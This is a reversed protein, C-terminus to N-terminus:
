GRNAVEETTIHALLERGIHETYAPPIAEVLEANTMWDIGMAARRIALEGAYQTNGHVGVVSARRGAKRGKNDLPTFRPTQWGHDCPVSWLFWNTEFYRHRRVDLGFASGCLQAPGILPAGAVNEIVYPLGTARLAARTPAVLDPYKAGHHKKATGSAPSYNQCPPSAHIAAVGSLPATSLYALADYQHFTFPYNPQRALDVGVVDFGARHYGMGAGGAGCFLDLLLPRTM